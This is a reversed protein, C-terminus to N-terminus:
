LGRFGVVVGLTKWLIKLDLWLSARELYYLDFQFKRLQAEFTSPYGNHVQDWGTLGPKAAFRLPFRPEARTLMRAFHERIPRPGVFSMEGRWVNYLQPLEDLRSRRLLRGIRTVRPDEAVAWRPADAEAGVVMTRLKVCRFPRGNQGLREQIFFVPGRSTLKIALAALLLLPVALPTCVAVLVLDLLRKLRGNLYALSPWRLQVWTCGRLAPTEGEWPIPSSSHILEKEGFGASTGMLQM